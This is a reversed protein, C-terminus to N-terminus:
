LMSPAAIKACVVCPAMEKLTCGVRPYELSSTGSSCHCGAGTPKAHFLQTPESSQSSRWSQDLNRNLQPSRLHRGLTSRAAGASGLGIQIKMATIGTGESRGTTTQLEQDRVQADELGRHSSAIKASELRSSTTNMRAIPGCDGRLSLIM